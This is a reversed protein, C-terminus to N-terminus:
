SIIRKIDKALQVGAEKIDNGEYMRCQRAYNAVELDVLKIRSNLTGIEGTNLNIDEGTWVPIAKRAAKIIGMGSPIRPKENLGCVTLLVPATTQWKEFGNELEKEICITDGDLTINRVNLMAEIGLSQAIVSGTVELEWDAAVRGCLILDYEGNKKIAKSLVEAASFGDIDAFNDIKVLIGEDAGMALAHRLADKEEKASVSLVTVKGGNKEKLRMALELAEEDYPSIVPPIGEPNVVVNLEKNIKFKSIPLEPDLIQKVCVIINM